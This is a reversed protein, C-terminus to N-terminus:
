VVERGVFVMMCLSTLSIDVHIDDNMDDDDDDDDDDDHYSYGCM